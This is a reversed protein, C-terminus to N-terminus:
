VMKVENVIMACDHSIIIDQHGHPLKICTNYWFSQFTVLPDLQQSLVDSKSRCVWSVMGTELNVLAAGLNTGTVALIFL